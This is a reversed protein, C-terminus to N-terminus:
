FFPLIAENAIFRGERTLRLRLGGPADVWELLGREYGRAIPVAYHREFEVGYREGFQAPDIGERTLRLGMMIAETRAGEPTIAEESAGERAMGLGAGEEVLAIYRQPRKVNGWRRGGVTGFAGAGLGLYEQNRWYILNHQAALWPTEWTSEGQLRAWNSIEYHGYRAEGLADITFAYMDASVDDDPSPVAGSQV